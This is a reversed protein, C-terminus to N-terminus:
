AIIFASVISFDVASMVRDLVSCVLGAMKFGGSVLPVCGMGNSMMFKTLAGNLRYFPWRFYEANSSLIKLLGTSLFATMPISWNISSYISSETISSRLIM